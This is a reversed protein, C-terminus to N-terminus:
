LRLKHLIYWQDLHLTIWRELMKNIKLLANKQAEIGKKVKFPKSLTLTYTLNDERKPWMPLIYADYQQALRIAYDINTGKHEINRGFSPSLVQGKKAEDLAMFLTGHNKLHNCIIRTSQPKAELLTINKAMRQRAMESIKRSFRNKAPKYLGLINIKYKNAFTGILEWNGTHAFVLIVAQKQHTFVKLYEDNLISVKKQTYIKDLISYECMLQGIHQWSKDSLINTEVETLQPYLISINKKVRKNKIPFRYKALISGLFQGAKANTSIPLYRLSYHIIYNIAGWFPDKIWYRIM